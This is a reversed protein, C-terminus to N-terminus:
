GFLIRRQRRHRHVLCTQGKAFAASVNLPALTSLCSGVTWSRGADDSRSVGGDNSLWLTGGGYAIGNQDVRAVFYRSVAIGHPDVHNLNNPDISHWSSADTPPGSCVRVVNSDCHFLLHSGFPLRHAVVYFRGSSEDGSPVPLQTWVGTGTAAFSGYDISWLSRDQGALYVQKPDSPNVALVPAGNTAAFDAPPDGSARGDPPGGVVSPVSAHDLAWTSGGNLSVWMRGSGLAYVRRATGDLPAVAVHWASGSASGWPKHDVFSLGGNNSIAIATETAAYILNPADLASVIETCILSPSLLRHVLMWTAGGDTSRYIGTRPTVRADHGVGVLVIDPNNPSIWIALVNPCPLSGPVGVMGPLPQPWAMQRWHGGGDDSRWLGSVSAGYVRTGDASAVIRTVRGSFSQGGLVITTRSKVPSVDEIHIM